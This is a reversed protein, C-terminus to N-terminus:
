LQLRKRKGGEIFAEEQDIVLDIESKLQKKHRNKLITAETEKIYEQPSHYQKLDLVNKTNSFQLYNGLPDKVRFVHDNVREIEVDADKLLKEM